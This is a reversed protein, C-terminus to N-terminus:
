QPSCVCLMRSSGVPRLLRVTSESRGKRRCLELLNRHGRSDAKRHHAEDAEEDLQDVDRDVLDDDPVIGLVLPPGLPTAVLLIYLLRFARPRGSSTTESNLFSCCCGSLSTQM